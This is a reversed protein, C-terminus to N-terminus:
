RQGGQPTEERMSSGAAETAPSKREPRVIQEWNCDSGDGYWDFYNCWRPSCRGCSQCRRGACWNKFTRWLDRFGTRNFKIPTVM